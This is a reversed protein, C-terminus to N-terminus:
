VTSNGPHVTVLTEKQLVKLVLELGLKRVGQNTEVHATGWSVWLKVNLNDRAFPKSRRGVACPSLVGELTAPIHSVREAFTEQETRHGGETRLIHWWM